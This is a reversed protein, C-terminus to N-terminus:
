LSVLNAHSSVNVLCKYSRHISPHHFPPSLARRKIIFLNFPQIRRKNNLLQQSYLPYFQFPQKQFLDNGAYESLSAPIFQITSCQLNTPQFQGAGSRPQYIATCIPTTSLQFGILLTPKVRHTTHPHQGSYPPFLQIPSSTSNFHPRLSRM